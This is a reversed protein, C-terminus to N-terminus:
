QDDLNLNVAGGRRGQQQKLNKLFLFNITLLLSPLHTRAPPSFGLKEV